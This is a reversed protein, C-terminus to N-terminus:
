RCLQNVKAHYPDYPRLRSTEEGEGRPLPPQPSLDAGIVIRSSRLASILQSDKTRSELQRSFASLQNSGRSTRPSLDGFVPSVSSTLRYFVDKGPQFKRYAAPLIYFRVPCYFQHSTLRLVASSMRAM